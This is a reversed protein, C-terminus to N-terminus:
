LSSGRSGSCRRPRRRPASGPRAAARRGSSRAWRGTGSGGMIGGHRFISRIVAVPRLAAQQGSSAGGAPAQIKCKVLEIPTLALSAFAGAFAGTLYLQPLSLGDRRSAWGISFMAERGVSEFMFLCSNEAAAGVLPATIGRYLGGIGDAKLSQRFCDLPGTYRLPLHDPQSQLRVKVTDFPYEIYKGVIGAISGYTVDEIAEMAAAQPKLSMEAPAQVPEIALQSTEM